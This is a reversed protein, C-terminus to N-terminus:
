QSKYLLTFIELNLCLRLLFPRSSIYCARFLYAYMKTQFGLPQTVLTM